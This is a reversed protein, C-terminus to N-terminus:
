ALSSARKGNFIGCAEALSRGHRLFRRERGVEAVAAVLYVKRAICDALDLLFAFLLTLPQDFSAIVWGLFVDNDKGTSFHNIDEAGAAPLLCGPKGPLLSLIQQKDMLVCVHMTNRRRFVFHLPM